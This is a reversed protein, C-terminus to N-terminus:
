WIGSLNNRTRSLIRVKFERFSLKYDLEVGLYKYSLVENILNLGFQYHFGCESM